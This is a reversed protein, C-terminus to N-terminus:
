FGCNYQVDKAGINGSVMPEIQLARDAVMDHKNHELDPKKYRKYFSNDSCYFYNGGCNNCGLLYHPKKDDPFGTQVFGYCLFGVM